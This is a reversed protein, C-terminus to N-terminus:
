SKLSNIFAEERKQKDRLKSEKGGTCLEANIEQLSQLQVGAAIIQESHKTCFAMVIGNKLIAVPRGPRQDFQGGCIPFDCQFDETAGYMSM